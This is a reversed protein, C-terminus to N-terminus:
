EEHTWLNTIHMFYDVILWCKVLAILALALFRGTDMGVAVGFEIATLIALIAIVILGRRNKRAYQLADKPQENM